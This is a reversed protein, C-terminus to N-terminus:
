TAMCNMPQCVPSLWAKRRLVFLLLGVELLVLYGTFLVDSLYHNTLLVRTSIVLLGASFFAYCYRPFLIMLGFVLGMMTSTHGSPCSWYGHDFRLGYFGYIQSEFLLAPRARGMFIKLVICLLYPITVCLWLFWSRIEWIKNRRVYRFFVALLLLAVVQIEGTGLHTLWYVFPLKEKMNLHYFFWAVPQDFYFFSLIVISFYCLVVWPRLMTKLVHDFPAM